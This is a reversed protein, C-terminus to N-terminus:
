LASISELWLLIRDAVSQWESDLMMDHAAGPVIVAETGYAVATAEVEATSFITDLEGGMVLMPVRVKSPKPLRFLMDLYALYAESQLHEFYDDIIEVPLDESFFAERALKPTAVIPYLDWTLNAKLFAVPHKAAIRLTTRLAGKVPDSALLVGGAAPHKELYIQTVLGGMSHGVVVPPEDLEAAVSAVDAVYDKIRTTKLSKDNDSEGHGRLSLATSVYGQEAFYPLFHENWCWAAHWAGHVFLLPTAKREGAPEHTIVELKV